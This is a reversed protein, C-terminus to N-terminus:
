LGEAALKLYKLYAHNESRAWRAYLGRAEPYPCSRARAIYVRSQGRAMGALFAMYTAGPLKEAKM